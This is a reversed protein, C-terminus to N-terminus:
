PLQTLRLQWLFTDFKQHPWLYVQSFRLNQDYIYPLPNPFRASCGWWIERPTGGGGPSVKGIIFKLIIGDDKSAM